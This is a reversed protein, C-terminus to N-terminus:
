PGGPHPVVRPGGCPAIVGRGGDAEGREDDAREQEDHEHEPRSPGVRARRFLGAQAALAVAQGAPDADGPREPEPDQQPHEADRDPALWRSVVARVLTKARETWPARRATQSGLLQVRCARDGTVSKGHPTMALAIVPWSSAM